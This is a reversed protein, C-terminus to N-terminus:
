EGFIKVSKSDDLLQDTDQKGNDHAQQAQQKSTAIQTSLGQVTSNSIIQGSGIAQFAAIPSYPVAIAAAFATEITQVITSIATKTDDHQSQLASRLDDIESQM